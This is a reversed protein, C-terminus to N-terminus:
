KVPKLRYVISIDNIEFGAPVTDDTAFRLRISKINNSESPVDPVLEAVQWGDAAPLEPVTFDYPFTTDGNVAYDVQVNSVVSGSAATTYTVIVKYIKKRQGPQGFDIDKTKFSFNNSTSSTDDWKLISGPAVAYILDGNWDTVVNTMNANGEEILSVNDIWTNCNNTTTPYFALYWNDDAAYSSPVIFTLSYYHWTDVTDADGFLDWDPFTSSGSFSMDDQLYTTRTNNKIRMTPDPDISFRGWWSLTYTKGPTLNFADTTISASGSQNTAHNVCKASYTGAYAQDTAQSWAAPGTGLAETWNALFDPDGAGATEFSPNAIINTKESKIWSQTVMDYLYRNGSSYQSNASDIILLQRKKPIYGITSYDTVFSAWESEKIIQRGSKEFLNNVKQGDYLYCGLNNVWAIGFDTKCTAAPHSIGKHLFTEELFEIEQSINILTMKKKGFV